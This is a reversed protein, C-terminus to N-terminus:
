SNEILPYSSFDFSSFYVDELPMWISIFSKLKEAGCRAKIRDVRVENSASLVYALDYYPRFEPRLSYVGEIIVISKDILVYEDSLTQTKCSFPRYSFSFSSKLPNLVDKLFREYDVNGGPEAMREETKRSEPLFFDDMHIVSVPSCSEILMALHSKGTGSKGDIAIVLRDKKKREREIDSLIM